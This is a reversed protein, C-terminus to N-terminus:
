AKGGYTRGKWAVGRGQGWAWASALMLWAVLGAGLPHAFAWLKPGGLSQALRLRVAWAILLQLGGAWALATGWVGWSPGWAGMASGWALGLGLIALPLPLCQLLCWLGFAGLFPGWQGGFAPFLNKTFGPGLEAWGGPYMHCRAQPGADRCGVLFGKAKASRALALDEAVAERVAEHGGWAQYAQAQALVLQGNAASLSPTRLREALALPLHALLVHILLPIVLKEAPSTAVQRPWGSMLQFGEGEAKALLGELVGAELRVDADLFVLWEAGAQIAAEALQACAWPKGAWGDPRPQGSLLHFHTQGEAAKQALAATGDTSGDDLLWLGLIGSQALAGQLCAVINRAEDRAPVLLAVRKLSGQPGPPAPRQFRRLNAELLLGQALGLAPLLMAWAGPQGLGLPGLAGLWAM